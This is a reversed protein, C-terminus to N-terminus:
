SSLFWGSTVARAISERYIGHGHTQRHRDTDTALRQEVLIALCLFVCVVGCSLGLVRTKQQWFDKRFEFPTVGLPPALHLHPLNICIVRYIELVIYSLRMTEILSSYSIMHVRDFPSMASSRPHGRVVVFWGLKVARAISERYIGHGHTQTQRDTDTVLRHEVLIALCLFVCVVGCSLGPVRTKQHWFDTRFQVPTVGLLPALHLHPLTFDAFKSLYRATDLFRHM